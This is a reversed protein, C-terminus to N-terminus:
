KIEAEACTLQVNEDRSELCSQLRKTLTAYPRVPTGAIALRCAVTYYLHARLIESKFGAHAPADWIQKVFARTEEHSWGLKTAEQSIVYDVITEPPVGDPTPLEGAQAKVKIVTAAGALEAVEKCRDGKALYGVLRPPEPQPSSACGAAAFLLLLWKSLLAPEM